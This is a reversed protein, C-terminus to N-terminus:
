ACRRFMDLRENRKRQRQAQQQNRFRDRQEV